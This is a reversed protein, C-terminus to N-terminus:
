GNSPPSDMHFYSWGYPLFDSKGYNVSSQAKGGCYEKRRIISDKLFAVSYDMSINQITKVNFLFSFFLKPRTQHAETRAESKPLTGKDLSQEPLLAILGAKM